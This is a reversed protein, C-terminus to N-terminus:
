LKKKDLVWRVLYVFISYDPEDYTLTVFNFCFLFKDDVRNYRFRKRPFKLNTLIVSLIFDYNTTTINFNILNVVVM